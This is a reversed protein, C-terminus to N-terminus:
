ILQIKFTEAGLKYNSLDIIYSNKYHINDYNPKLLLILAQDKTLNVTFRGHKFNEPKISVIMKIEIKKWVEPDNYGIPLHDDSFKKNLHWWKIKCRRSWSEKHLELAKKYINSLM